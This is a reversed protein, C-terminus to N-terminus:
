ITKTLNSKFINNQVLSIQNTIKEVTEQDTAQKTSWAILSDMFFDGNLVFNELNLDSHTNINKDAHPYELICKNNSENELNVLGILTEDFIEDGSKRIGWFQPKIDKNVLTEIGSIIIEKEEHNKNNELKSKFDIDIILGKNYSNCIEILGLLRDIALEEALKSRNKEFYIKVSLLNPDFINIIELADKASPVALGGRNIHEIAIATKINEKKSQFLIGECLNPEAWIFYNNDKNAQNLSDFILNAAKSAQLKELASKPRNQELNCSLVNTRNDLGIFFNNQKNDIM